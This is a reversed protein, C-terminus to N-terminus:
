RLRNVSRVLTEDFNIRRLAMYNFLPLFLPFFLGIAIDFTFENAIEKYYKLGTSFMLIYLLVIFIYNCAVVITQIKRMNYLFISVIAITGIAALSISMWLIPIVNIIVEGATYFVKTFHISLIGREGGTWKAFGEFEIYSPNTLLLLWAIAAILLLYVTQIRQIM